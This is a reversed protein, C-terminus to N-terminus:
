PACATFRAFLRGEQHLAPPIHALLARLALGYFRAAHTVGNQLDLSALVLPPQAPRPLCYRQAHARLHVLLSTKGMRREGVLNVSSFDALYRGLFQLADERGFLREHARLPRGVVFPSGSAFGGVERGHDM